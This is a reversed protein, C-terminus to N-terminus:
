IQLPRFSVSKFGSLIETRRDLNIFEIGEDVNPNGCIMDSGNPISAVTWHLVICNTGQLGQDSDDADAQIYCSHRDDATLKDLM